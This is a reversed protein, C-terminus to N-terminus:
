PLLYLESANSRITLTSADHEGRAVLEREAEAWCPVALFDALTRGVRAATEGVGSETHERLTALQELLRPSWRLTAIDPRVQGRGRVHYDQDGEPLQVASEDARAARTFDLLPNAM